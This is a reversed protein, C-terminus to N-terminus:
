DTLPTITQDYVIEGALDRLTLRLESETAIGEIWMAAEPEGLEADPGGSVLQAYPFEGTPELWAPEHMHGSLVVQAGWQVLHDHWRERSRLSFSDYGENDYDVPTEDKWRLPIHCVVVRYPASAIEPQQLACELWKAQEERLVDLAVRGEFTPHDDPKDEGSHLYVFAVPGSRVVGYPKGHPMAIYRPLRYAWKGRVDHNGVTFQIPRSDSVDLGAPSLLTPGFESEDLWDNCLDGNWFLTDVAPTQRHLEAITEVRQHTDNWLAFHTSAATPDLTRVSKWASAHVEGTDVAQTIARVECRSAASLGNVRVRLVESGQPVMGWPDSRVITPKRDSGEERMELWGKSLQGVAWVAEFGDTRPAMIVVPSLVLNQSM